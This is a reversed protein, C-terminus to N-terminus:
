DRGAQHELAQRIRSRGHHLLVRQRADSIALLESVERSALGEVDRLLVVRRPWPPLEEIAARIAPWAAPGRLREGADDPWPVPPLVWSGDARFRGPGAPYGAPPGSHRERDGAARARSVLIGFLWTRLSARGDFGELGCLMGLWTDQVVDEAARGPVYTAALRILTPHYRRVLAVFAEQDGSRLREVLEADVGM